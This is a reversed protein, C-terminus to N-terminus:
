LSRARPWIFMFVSGSFGMMWTPTPLTEKVSVCSTSFMWATNRAIPLLLIELAERAAVMPGPTFTDRDYCEQWIGEYPFHVGVPASPYKTQHCRRLGYTAVVKARPHEHDVFLILHQRPSLIQNRPLEKQLM